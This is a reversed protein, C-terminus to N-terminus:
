DADTLLENATAKPFASLSQARRHMRAPQQADHGLGIDADM